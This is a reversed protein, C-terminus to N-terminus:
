CAASKVSPAFAAKVEAYFEPHTSYLSEALQALTEGQVTRISRVGPLKTLFERVVGIHAGKMAAELPTGSHGPNLAEVVMEAARGGSPLQLLLEVAIANGCAAASHLPTYGNRGRVTVFWEPVLELLTALDRRYGEEDDGIQFPVSKHLQYCACSLPTLGGEWVDATTREFFTREYRSCIAVLLSADVDVNLSRWNSVTLPCDSESM